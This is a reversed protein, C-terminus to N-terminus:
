RRDAFGTVHLGFSVIGMSLGLALARLVTITSDGGLIAGVVFAVLTGSIFYAMAIVVAHTVNETM